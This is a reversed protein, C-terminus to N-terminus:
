WHPARRRADEKPMIYNALPIRHLTSSSVPERCWSQRNSSGDAVEMVVGLNGYSHEVLSGGERQLMIRDLVRALLRRAKDTNNCTTKEWEAKVGSRWHTETSANQITRSRPKHGPSPRM